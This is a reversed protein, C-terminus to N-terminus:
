LGKKIKEWVGAYGCIDIWSDRHDPQNLLRCQKLAIMCQVVQEKTIEKGLIVSWMAAINSFNKTASGYDKERDGYILSEAEQLVTLEPKNPDIKELIFAPYWFGSGKDNAFKVTVGVRDSIGNVIGILGVNRSMVVENWNNEWGSENNTAERLLKVKDGVKLQLRELAEKHTEIKESM